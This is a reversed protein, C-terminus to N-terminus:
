RRGRRRLSLAASQSSSGKWILGDEIWVGGTERKVSAPKRGLPACALRVLVFRTRIRGETFECRM